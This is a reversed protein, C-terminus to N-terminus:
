YCSRVQKLKLTSFEGSQLENLEPLRIISYSLGSSKLMEEGRYKYYLEQKSRDNRNSIVRKAETEDFLTAADGNDIDQNDLLTVQKLQHNVMSKNVNGLRADSLYIFEPEPQKRFLKIYSLALYFSIWKTDTKKGKTNSETKALNDASNIRFGIQKVDVGNFVNLDNLESIVQRKRRIVPVFSSFPLRVTAFKNGSKNGINSKSTTQFKCVYEVGSIDYESTRVFAEYTKGDSCLRCVFGAFGNSLDIGMDPTDRSRLRSSIISAESGGQPSNAMNPLKGVFVGHKFKNKMWNVQTKITSLRPKQKVTSSSKKKMTSDNAKYSDYDYEDYYYDKDDNRSQDYKSGLNDDNSYTMKTYEDNYDKKDSSYDSYTDYQHVEDDSMQDMVEEDDFYISFLDFDEERSQFKFLSRKAAQSTGYDAHRVNQYARLVNQMGICDVQEAIKAKMEMLESLQQIESEKPDVISPSVNTNQEEVEKSQKKGKGGESKEEEQLLTDKIFQDFKMQYDLEDKQPPSECFVIKDVDTLAYELSEMDYLEGQCYTVGTGLMNLTKSYLNHVLVRVKFKKSLLLRKVVLRGIASTAGSIFYRELIHLM